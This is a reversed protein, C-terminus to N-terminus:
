VYDDELSSVFVDNTQPTGAALYLASDAGKSEDVLKLTVSVEDVHNKIVQSILAGSLFPTLSISLALPPNFRYVLQADRQSDSVM